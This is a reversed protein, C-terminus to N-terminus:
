RVNSAEKAKQMNVLTILDSNDRIGNAERELADAACEQGNNRMRRALAFWEGLNDAGAIYSYKLKIAEERLALPSIRCVSNKHKEAYERIESVAPFFTKERILAELAGELHQMDLDKLGLWYADVLVTLNDIKKAPFTAQLIAIVWKIEDRTSM